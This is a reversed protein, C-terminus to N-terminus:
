FSFRNIAKLIRTMTSDIKHRNNLHVRNHCKVCLCTLNRPHNIVETEFHYTDSVKHWFRNVLLHRMTIHHVHFKGSTKGCYVCQKLKSVRYLNRRSRSSLPFIRLEKRKRNKIHMPAQSCNKCNKVNMNFTASAFGKYEIHCNTCYLTDGKYSVKKIRISSNISEMLKNWEEPSKTNPPIYAKWLWM